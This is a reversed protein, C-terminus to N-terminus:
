VGMSCRIGVRHHVTPRKRLATMDQAIRAVINVIFTPSTINERKCGRQEFQSSKKWAMRANIRPNRKENM